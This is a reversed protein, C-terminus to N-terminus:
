NAPYFILRYFRPTDTPPNPDAISARAGVTGSNTYSGATKWAPHEMSDTYQVEYRGQFANFSITAKGDVQSLDISTITLAGVGSQLPLDDFGNPIGDLDMDIIQSHRLARNMPVSSGNIVVDESTNPGNFTGVWYLHGGGLQKGNLFEAMSQFGTNVGRQLNTATVDAYYIDISGTANALLRLQNTLSTLNTIGPGRIDLLDVYLARGSQTGSFEFITNTGTQLVIHGVGMNTTYAAYARNTAAVWAGVSGIPINTVAPDANVPASWIFRYKGGAPPELLMTTGLLSGGAVTTNLAFSNSSVFVNNAGPGSDVLASTVNLNIGVGADIRTNDFKFVPGNMTVTGLTDVSAGNLRGIQNATISLPGSDPVFVNSSVITGFQTLLFTFSNQGSFISGTIDVTDAVISQSYASVVGQDVFSTLPKEATGFEALGVLRLTGTPEITLNALNPANTGWLTNRLEVNGAITVDSSSIDFRNSVIMNDDLRLSATRAEFDAVSVEQVSTVGTADVVTVQYFVNYVNSLLDGFQNTFVGTWLQVPGRMRAVHDKALNKISLPTAPAAPNTYALNFALNQADIITGVSSALQDTKLKVLGEARIGTGTLDITKGMIEVRGPLDQVSSDPIAPVAYALNELDFVYGAYSNTVVINSFTTSFPSFVRPDPPDIFLNPTALINSPSGFEFEFPRMRTVFYNAPRFFGPYRDNAAVFFNTIGAGLQDAIYVSNTQLQFTLANTTVSSLQLIPTWFTNPDSNFGNFTYEIPYWRVDPIVNTDGTQVYVAHVYYNTADRIFFMGFSQADNLFWSTTLSTGFTNTLKHQPVIVATPNFSIVFNNQNQNTFTGIGWWEDFIGLDNLISTPSVWQDGYSTLVEQGFAKGLDDVALVGSSVDVVDANLSGDIENTQGLRLLGGAGIRMLGHNEIHRADVRGLSFPSSWVGRIFDQTVPFSGLHYGDALEIRAGPANVFSDAPTREAFDDVTEFLISTGVIVGNNVYNTVGSMDYPTNSISFILNTGVGLLNQVEFYGDNIFQDAMVVQNTVASRNHYVPIRQGWAPATVFAVLLLVFRTMM